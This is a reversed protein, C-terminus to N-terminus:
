IFSTISNYLALLAVASVAFTFATKVAKENSKRNMRAGLIGGLVALPIIFFLVKLDFSAFGSKIYTTILNSLQSFFIVAVSYVSADKMSFSFLLTLVAVNIPGGGIGIFSAVSGLILGSLVIAFPSKINFTKHKINVSLVTFVLFIFLLVSQFGRVFDSSSSQMLIKNFTRNGFIGGLISGLAFLIVLRYNIKTKKYIHTATSTVSMAFVACSSFFSIESLTHLNILDFIPKIIVGGGLGVFAGLFTAAFVVLSYIFLYM